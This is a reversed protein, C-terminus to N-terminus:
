GLSLTVMTRIAGAGAKSCVMHPLLRHLRGALRCIAARTSSAAVSSVCMWRRAAHICAPRRVIGRVFAGWSSFAPATTAKWIMSMPRSGRRTLRASMPVRAPKAPYSLARRCTAKPARRLGALSTMTKCPKSTRLRWQTAPRLRPMQLRSAACIATVARCQRKTGAAINPTTYHWPSFHPLESPWCLPEQM